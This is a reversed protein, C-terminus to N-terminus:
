SKKNAVNNTELPTPAHLLAIFDTYSRTQVINDLMAPDRFLRSLESTIALQEDPADVPTLVLFIVHAIKGDPADFDIGLRSIGMVVMSKKLKEIRAHPLAVGKGIGTSMVNEREWVADGLAQPDLGAVNGAADAMEYIVERRSASRLEPLFLKPSLLDLLRLKKEPRLILRMGPGSLMSTVIAMIVLAVFLQERIVGAELAIIGVIIGMAGVSVMAFGVVWSERFSMKGWWAGTTGGALKGVFTVVLIALVLRLDFHAAFNVKLGISAFFVPAFIFSIFDGIIVRSRERLHSSDGIAVGMIFAGLIAHIGIWETFAAGLLGLVLAFSLEGAPWRTYAQIFPLIRHILWRGVTLMAAIFVLTLIITLMVPTHNGSAEGMLGLIIAFIIWGVIDNFIAASIVVMGLDSRYLDMDILTKAIIPLASISMAIALFLAFIMADADAHRGLAEPIILAATLVIFFPVAISALGVTFGTKGQKWVTSLDVEMGAVLLFLGIALTAITELAIANPGQLPFLFESAGPAINGLITPGLIVGAILEGLISPQHLRQAIEGLIRATGLLIGLSFFLVMIQHPNLTEM